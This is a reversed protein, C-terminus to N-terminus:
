HTGVLASPTAHQQMVIRLSHCGSCYAFVEEHGESRPLGYYDDNPDFASAKTEAIDFSPDLVNFVPAFDPEKPWNGEAFQRIRSQSSASIAYHGKKHAKQQLAM